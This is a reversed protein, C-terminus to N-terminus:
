NGWECDHRRRQFQQQGLPDLHRTRDQEPGGDRDLKSHHGFADLEPQQLVTLVPNGGASVDDVTGAGSLNNLAPSFGALDLTGNVTVSDATPGSPIAGAAGLM